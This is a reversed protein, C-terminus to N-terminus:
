YFKQFSKADWVTCQQYIWKQFPVCQESYFSAHISQHRESKSAKLQRKLDTEGGSENCYVSNSETLFLDFCYNIDDTWSVDHNKPETIMRIVNKASLWVQNEPPSKGKKSHCCGWCLWEGWWQTGEWWNNKLRSQM